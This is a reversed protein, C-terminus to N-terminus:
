IIYAVDQYYAETETGKKQVKVRIVWMQDQKCRHQVYKTMIGGYKEVQTLARKDKHCISLLLMILLFPWVIVVCLPHLLDSFNTTEVIHWNSVFVWRWFMPSDLTSRDLLAPPSRCKRNISAAFGSRWLSASMRLSTYLFAHFSARLARSLDRADFRKIAGITVLSRRLHGEGWTRWSGSAVEGALPM